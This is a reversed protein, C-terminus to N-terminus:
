QDESSSAGSGSNSSSQLILKLDCGGSYNNPDLTRQADAVCESITQLSKINGAKCAIGSDVLAMASNCVSSSSIKDFTSGCESKAQKRGIDDIGGFWSSYSEIALCCKALSAAEILFDKNSSETGCIKNNLPKFVVSWLASALAVGAFVILVLGLAPPVGWANPMFISEILSVEM